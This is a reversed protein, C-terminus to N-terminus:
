LGLIIGTELLTLNLKIEFYNIRSNIQRMKLSKETTSASNAGVVCPIITARNGLLQPMDHNVEARYYSSITSGANFLSALLYSKINRVKTTNKGLCNIVYEM